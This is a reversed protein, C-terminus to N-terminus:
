LANIQLLMSDLLVDINVVTVTRNKRKLIIIIYLPIIM